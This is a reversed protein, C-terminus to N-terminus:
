GNFARPRLRRMIRSQRDFMRKKAAARRDDYGVLHLVGHVALTMWETLEDHKLARAQRRAVGLAIFIDGFPPAASGPEPDYPFALVDTPRDKGLHERNLRRMRGDSVFIVCLEGRRQRRAGLAARVARRVLGRQRSMLKGAPSILINM